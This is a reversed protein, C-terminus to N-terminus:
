QTEFIENLFERMHAWSREDSAKNYAVGEMGHQDADPNTFSHVTGSYSVMQWDVNGATLMEQFQAIREKPIFPDDAGHCILVKAKTAQAQTATAVPLSGHFSVVGKLEAGSYALQMVTAGGFCYGIAAIRDGDVNEQSTLVQLGARARQVWSELNERVQASWATAEAAHETSKGEGYMDLAFAVYGLGALKKARDQAHKELGWWEHAVLVGPQPGTLTDDWALFGTLEVDGDSYQITKTQVEAASTACISMVSLGVMVICFRQIYKM